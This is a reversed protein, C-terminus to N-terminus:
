FGSAEDGLLSAKRVDLHDPAAGFDFVSMGFVYGEVARYALAL